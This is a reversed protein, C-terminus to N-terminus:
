VMSWASVWERGDWEYLEINGHDSVTLFYGGAPGASDPLEDGSPLDDFTRDEDLRSRDVWFGYDCGDGESAGFYCYPPSYEGLREFLAELDHGPHDSDYYGPTDMRGEMYGLFADLRIVEAKRNETADASETTPGPAAIRERIDDLADVFAPILDEPRMTASSVSGLRAYYM